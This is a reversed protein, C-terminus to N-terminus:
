KNYYFVKAKQLWSTSSQGDIQQKMISLGAQFNDDEDFEYSLFRPFIGEEMM